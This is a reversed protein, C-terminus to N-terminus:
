PDSRLAKAFRIVDPMFRGFHHLLEERAHILLPTALELRPQRSFRRSMNFLAIWIGDISAYSPLWGEDRMIPYLYRLRGPMSEILPDLAAYTLRLFVPLPEKAYTTWETALLHDFFMDAIVRSYHGHEVAIIRRIAAVNPHTDTFADIRRHEMIGARVGESFKGDVSGKVFDGSLNGLLSESSRGALFLHALHNM